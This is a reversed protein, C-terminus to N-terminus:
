KQATLFPNYVKRPPKSKKIKSTNYINYSISSSSYLLFMRFQFRCKHTDM